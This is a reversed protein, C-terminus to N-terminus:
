ATKRKRKAGLRAAIDAYGNERQAFSALGTLEYMDGVPLLLDAVSELSRDRKLAAMTREVARAAALVAFMPFTVAAAGAAELDDVTPSRTQGSAQSLNAMHPGEVERCIRALDELRDAGQVFIMDAGAEKYLHARELAADLGHVGLADTRAMIVLDADQRADLAAKVKAVMQEAPIVSKGALYGCRKPTSQDEFFLGAVGAREFERVMRRVNHVGGFGTDADALIPIDVAQCLRGYHDAYDRLGMQGMDPEAMLSATAANGGCGLAEFGHAAAIRASLADYAGPMILIEPRALLERFRKRKNM